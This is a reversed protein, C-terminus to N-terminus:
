FLISNGTQQSSAGSNWYDASSAAAPVVAIPTVRVRAKRHKGAPAQCQAFLAIGIILLVIGAVLPGVWANIWKSIDEKGALVVPVKKM